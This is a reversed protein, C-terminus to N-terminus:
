LPKTKLFFENCITSEVPFYVVIDGVQTSKDVVMDYGNVVTRVLNDSNEIPYTETIRCITAVYNLNPNESLKFM